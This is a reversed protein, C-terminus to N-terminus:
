QLLIIILWGYIRYLSLKLRGSLRAYARGQTM